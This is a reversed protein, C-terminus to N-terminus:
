VAPKASLLRRKRTTTGESVSVEIESGDPLTRFFEYLESRAWPAFFWLREGDGLKQVFLHIGATGKGWASREVRARWTGAPPSDGYRARDFGTELLRSWGLRAASPDKRSPVPVARLGHEMELARLSATVRALDWEMDWATGRVPHVRNVVFYLSQCTDTEGAGIVAQLEGADMRTLVACAISELLPLEVRDEPDFSVRFRYVPYQARRSLSATAEM